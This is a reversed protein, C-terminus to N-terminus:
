IAGGNERVSDAALAILKEGIEERGEETHLKGACEQCLIFFTNAEGPRLANLRSRSDDDRFQVLKRGHARCIVCEPCHISEIGTVTQDPEMDILTAPVGMRAAVAAFFLRRARMYGQQVARRQRRNKPLDPTWECHIDPRRGSSVTVTFEVSFGAGVPIPRSVTCFTGLEKGIHSTVKICKSNRPHYSIQSDSRLEETEVVGKGPGVHPTNEVNNELFNM